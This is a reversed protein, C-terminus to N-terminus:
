RDKEYTEEAEQAGKEIALIALDTDDIASLMGDPMVNAEGLRQSFSKKVNDYRTHRDM